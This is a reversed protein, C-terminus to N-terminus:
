LLIKKIAASAKIGSQAAGELTAPLGTATWDGALMLNKIPTETCLRYQEAEPTALFTASKEKVVQWALLKAAAAEPFARRIEDACHLATKEPYQEALENGASVTIAIHGPYKSIIEPPAACIARRNFTWQSATGLMAVFDNSMVPRDFWLYLSIIPSFRIASLVDFPKRGRIEAPLLRELSRPPVASIVADCQITEGNAFRVASVKGDTFILEEAATSLLLRGGRNELYKGVPAFIESLGKEAILIQSADSKGFFARRLVEIFLKASAMEPKTNLTALVIPEWLRRIIEESQGYKRLFEASTLKETRLIGARLAAAFLLAKIKSIFDLRRLGFIGAAVGIAGSVKSCDLVDRFGDPEAFEVRLYQQRRFLHETDLKRISALFSEYCGMLIHQGNDIVEGTERDVFSRARGGIYPRAEALVVTKHPAIDIAAAIGAAGAGIIAVTDNGM